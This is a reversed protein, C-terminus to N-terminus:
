LTMPGSSMPHRENIGQFDHWLYVDVNDPHIGFGCYVTTVNNAHVGM